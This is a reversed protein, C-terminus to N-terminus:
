SKIIENWLSLPGDLHNKRFNSQRFEFFNKNRSSKPYCIEELGTKDFPSWPREMRVKEGMKERSPVNSINDVKKEKISKLTLAM